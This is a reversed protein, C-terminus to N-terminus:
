DTEHELGWADLDCWGHVTLEDFEVGDVMWGEGDDFWQATVLARHYTIAKDKVKGSVTAVVTIGDEPLEEEPKYWTAIVQEIM